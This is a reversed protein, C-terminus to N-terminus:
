AETQLRALNEKVARHFRSEGGTDCFYSTLRIQQAQYFGILETARRVWERWEMPQGHLMEHERHLRRTNELFVPYDAALGSLDAARVAKQEATLFPADRQTSLIADAVKRVTRPPIGRASLCQTALAASYAEKSEFGRKRHDHQYGADHFLLAYYVVQPEVRIGEERCHGIIVDAAALTAEVHAFNHYPLDSYLAAAEAELPPDRMTAFTWATVDSLPM